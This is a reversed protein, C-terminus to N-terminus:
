PASTMANTSTLTGSMPSKLSTEMMSNSTLTPSVIRASCLKIVTSLSLAEISIGLLWAPTTFSSLTPMPSLILMPSKTRTSSLAEAGAAAGVGAGAGATNAAAGAWTGAAAGAADLVTVTCTGSM